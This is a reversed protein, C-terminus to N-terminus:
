VYQFINIAKQGIQMSDKKRGELDGVVRMERNGGKSRM